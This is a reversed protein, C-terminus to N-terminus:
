AAKRFIRVASGVVFAGASQTKFLIRTLNLGGTFWNTDCAEFHYLRQGAVNYNITSTMSGNPQPAITMRGNCPGISPHSLFPMATQNTFSGADYRYGQMTLGILSAGYFQALTIESTCHLSFYVDYIEDTALDLGTIDIASEGSGCVHEYALEWAGGGGGAAALRDAVTPYDGQPNEGLTNEIAVIAASHGNFDEAFYTKTDLPNYEVGQINTTNRFEDIAGPYNTM